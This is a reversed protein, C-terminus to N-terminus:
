TLVPLEVVFRAGRPPNEECRISGGHGRVIEECIALGLGTGGGARRTTFFPEFVSERLAPDVGPGRDAVVLAAIDGAPRSQVSLAVHLEGGGPQAQLANLVLNLVVQELEDRIGRMLVADCLEHTVKVRARECEADVFNLCRQVVAALDLFEQQGRVERAHSLHSEIVASVQRAGALIERLQREDRAPDRPQELAYKARGLVVSLPSGVRHALSASFQGILALRQAHQLRRELAVKANTQADVEERAARLSRVMENFASALAGVEDDRGVPVAEDLEGRGVRAAFQSLRWLRRLVWARLGLGALLLVAASIGLGVALLQHTTARLRADVYALDRLTVVAGRTGPPLESRIITAHAYLSRAGDQLVEGQTRDLALARAALPRVRPVLATVVRSCEVHRTSADFVVVGLVRETRALDETLERLDVLSRDRLFADLAVELAAGLASAERAAERLM